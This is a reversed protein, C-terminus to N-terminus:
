SPELARGDPVYGKVRFTSSGDTQPLIYGVAYGLSFETITRADAAPPPGPDRETPIALTPIMMLDQRASIVPLAWIKEGSFIGAVKYPEETGMLIGPDRFIGVDEGVPIRSSVTFEQIRTSVIEGVLRERQVGDQFRIPSYSLNGNVGRSLREKLAYLMQIDRDNYEITIATPKGSGAEVIDLVLKQGHDIPQYDGLNRATEPNIRCGALLTAATLAGSLKLFDRRSLPKKEQIDDPM